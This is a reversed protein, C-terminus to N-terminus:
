LQEQPGKDILEREIAASAADGQLRFIDLVREALGVARQYGKKRAMEVPAWDEKESFDPFLLGIEPFIVSRFGGMFSLYFGLAGKKKNEIIYKL